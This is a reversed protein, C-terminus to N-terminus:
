KTTKFNSKSSNLKIYFAKWIEAIPMHLNKLNLGEFQFFLQWGFNRVYCGTELGFFAFKLSSSICYQDEHACLLVLKPRQNSWPLQRDHQPPTERKVGFM